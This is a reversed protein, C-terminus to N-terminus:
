LRGGLSKLVAAVEAQRPFRDGLAALRDLEAKALRKENAEAYLRALRLRLDPDDPQLALASKQMALAEPLQRDAALAQALTDRLAPLDPAAQVAQQALPLAGPKKQALLLWAVNNLSLAHAPDIALV